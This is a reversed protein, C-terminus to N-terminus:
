RPPPPSPAGEVKDRLQAIRLRLGGETLELHGDLQLVALRRAELELARSRAGGAVRAARLLDLAVQDARVVGQAARLRDRPHNTIRPAHRALRAVLRAGALEAPRRADRRRDVRRRPEVVRVREVSSREPSTAAPPWCWTKMVSMKLM